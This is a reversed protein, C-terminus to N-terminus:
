LYSTISIFLSTNIVMYKELLGDSFITKMLHDNTHSKVVFYIMYAYSKHSHSEISFRNQTIALMNFAAAKYDKFLM